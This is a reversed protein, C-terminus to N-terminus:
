NIIEEIKEILLQIDIPKEIFGTAGLTITKLITVEDTVASVVIVPINKTVDNSKIILLLDFGSTEPMYLDLLILNPKEKEILSFAERANLATIIKYGRINLLAELLVVNTNSDDIVLIKRGQTATIGM